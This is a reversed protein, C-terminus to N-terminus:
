PVLFGFFPALCYIRYHPNQVNNSRQALDYNKEPDAKLEVGAQHERGDGKVGNLDSGSLDTHLVLVILMHYYYITTTSPTNLHMCIM